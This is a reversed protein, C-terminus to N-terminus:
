IALLVDEDFVGREEVRAWRLEMSAIACVAEFFGDFCVHGIPQGFRWETVRFQNNLESLSVFLGTYLPTTFLNM